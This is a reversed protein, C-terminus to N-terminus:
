PSPVAKPSNTQMITPPNSYLLSTNSLFATHSSICSVLFACLVTSIHPLILGDYTIMVIALLTSPLQPHSKLASKIQPHIDSVLIFGKIKLFFRSPSNHPSPSLLLNPYKSYKSPSSINIQCLKQLQLKSSSTM